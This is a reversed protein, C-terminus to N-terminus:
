DDKGATLIAIILLGLMGGVWFTILAIWWPIMQEVAKEFYFTGGFPNVCHWGYDLHTVNGM